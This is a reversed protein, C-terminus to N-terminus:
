GPPIADQIFSYILWAVFLLAALRAIRRGWIEIRDHGDVENASFHDRARNAADALSSGLATNQPTNLNALTKLAKSQTPDSSPDQPAVM